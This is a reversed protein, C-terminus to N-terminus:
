ITAFTSGTVPRPQPTIFILLERKCKKECTVQSYNSTAQANNGRCDSWLCQSMEDDELTGKLSNQSYDLVFTCCDTGNAVDFLEFSRKQPSWLVRLCLYTKFFIFPIKGIPIISPLNRPKCNSSGYSKKTMLLGKELIKRTLSAFICFM